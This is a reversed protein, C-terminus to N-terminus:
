RLANPRALLRYPASHLSALVLNVDFVLLIDLIVISLNVTPWCVLDSGHPLLEELATAFAADQNWGDPAVTAGGGIHALQMIECRRLQCLLM